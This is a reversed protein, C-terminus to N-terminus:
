SVWQVTARYQEGSCQVSTGGVRRRLLSVSLRDRGEIIGVLQAWMQPDIRVRDEPMITIDGELLESIKDLVSRM